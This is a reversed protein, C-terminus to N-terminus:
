NKIQVEVLSRRVMLVLLFQYKKSKGVEQLSAENVRLINEPKIDRHIVQEQDIFKLLPM